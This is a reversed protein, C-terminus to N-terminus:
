DAKEKALSAAQLLDGAPGAPSVMLPSWIWGTFM